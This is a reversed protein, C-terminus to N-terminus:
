VAVFILGSASSFQHFSRPPDCRSASSTLSLRRIDPLGEQLINLETGVLVPRLTVTVQIEGAM